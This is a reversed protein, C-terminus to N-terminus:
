LRRRNAQIRGTAQSMSYEDPTFTDIEDAYEGRALMIYYEDSYAYDIPEHECRGNWHDLPMERLTRPPMREQMRCWECVKDDNATIWVYLKDAGYVFEEVNRLSKEKGYILNGGVADILKRVARKFNPLISFSDKSMNDRFFKSKLKLEDGLQNVLNTISDGMIELMSTDMSAYEGTNPISYQTLLEEFYQKIHAYSKDYATKSLEEYLSDMVNEVEDMVESPTMSQLLRYRQEVLMLCAVLVLQEDVDYYTPATFIALPDDDDEDSQYYEEIEQIQKVM